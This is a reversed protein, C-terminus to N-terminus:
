GSVWVTSQGTNWESGGLWVRDNLIKAKQGDYHSYKLILVQLKVSRGTGIIEHEM